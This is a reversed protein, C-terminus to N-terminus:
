ELPAQTDQLTTQCARVRKELFRREAPNRALPLAAAFHARAAEPHGRRLELEGIAAPYFPYSKLRERDAIADLEKIGREAGDRQAIAVARNLAVVPSPAITMLQDYLGVILKWDTQDVSSASAHGAAIAAELHYATLERGAASRELLGLGRVILQRDWRSRDQDLFPSLDGAQDLRAALRAAHLCM